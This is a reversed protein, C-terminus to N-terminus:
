EAKRRELVCGFPMGSLSSVATCSSCPRTSWQHPDNQIVSLVAKVIPDARDEDEKRYVEKELRELRELVRDFDNSM